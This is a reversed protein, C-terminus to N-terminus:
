RTLDADTYVATIVSQPSVVYVRPIGSSAFLSYIRSDAQASWPLTLGEQEWFASISAAGEDRAVCIFRTASGQAQAALWRRNIEPLERRCDPCSTNFFVIVAKAGALSEPTVVTGDNMTVSFTPLPDGPRLSFEPEDEDMVCSTFTVATMVMVAMVAMTILSTSKKLM